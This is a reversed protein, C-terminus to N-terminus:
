REDLCVCLIPEYLCLPDPLDFRQLVKSVRIARENWQDKPHGM